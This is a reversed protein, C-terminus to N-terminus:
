ARAAQGAAAAGEARESKAHRATVYEAVVEARTTDARRLAAFGNALLQGQATLAEAGVRARVLGEERSVLGRDVLAALVRELSRRSIGARLALSETSAPRESTGLLLAQTVAEISAPKLRQQALLAQVLAADGSDAFTISTAGPPLWATDEFHQELSLPAQFHLVFALDPRPPASTLGLSVEAPGALGSPCSHPSLSVLVRAAGTRFLELSAAREAEAMGHHARACSVGQERLESFVSDAEQATLTLVIGPGSFEAVAALMGRRREAPRLVRAREILTVTAAEIVHSPSAGIASTVAAVVRESTRTCTGLVPARLAQCAERLSLYAPSLEHAHECAAHAGALGLLALPARDIIERVDRELLQAPDAVVLLSGGRSLRGKALSRSGPKMFSGLGVVDVKGNARAVAFLEAALPSAVVVPRSSLSAATLYLAADRARASNTLLTTQGGLALALAHSEDQRLIFGLALARATVQQQSPKPSALPAVKPKATRKAVPTPKAAVRKASRTPKAVVRKAARAPKVSRKAKSRAPAASRARSASRGAPKSSKAM